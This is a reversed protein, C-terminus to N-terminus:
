FSATLYVLLVIYPDRYHLLVPILPSELNALRQLNAQSVLYCMWAAHPVFDNNHFKASKTIVTVMQDHPLKEVM